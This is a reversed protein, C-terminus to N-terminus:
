DILGYLAHVTKFNRTTTSVDLRNEIASPTLKTIRYGDPCYLYIRDDVVCFKEGLFHINNLQNIAAPTAKTLLFIIYLKSYDKKAIQTYPNKKIVANLEHKSQIFVALKIGLKKRIEDEILKSLILKDNCASMFVVNGSQIYSRVNIFGLTEYLARLTQMNITNYGSVNIGRLLSIYQYM